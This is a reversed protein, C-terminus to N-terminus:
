CTSDTKRREDIARCIDRQAEEYAEGVDKAKVLITRHECGEKTYITMMVRYYGDANYPSILTETETDTM